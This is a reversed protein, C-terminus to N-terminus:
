PQIGNNARKVEDDEVGYEWQWEQERQWRQEQEIRQQIQRALEAVTRADDRTAADKMEVLWQDIRSVTM